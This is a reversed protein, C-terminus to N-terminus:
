RKRLKFTLPFLVNDIYGMLAVYAKIDIKKLYNRIIHRNVNWVDVDVSTKMLDIGEQNRSIVENQYATSFMPKSSDFKETPVYM